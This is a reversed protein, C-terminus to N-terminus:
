ASFEGGCEVCRVVGLPIADDHEHHQLRNGGCAPCENRQLAELNHQRQGKNLVSYLNRIEKEKSV